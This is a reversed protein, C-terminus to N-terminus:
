CEQKIEHHLNFHNRVKDDYITIGMTKVGTEKDAWTARNYTSLYDRKYRATGSSTSAYCSVAGDKGNVREVQALYIGVGESM